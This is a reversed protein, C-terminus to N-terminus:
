RGVDERVGLLDPLARGPISVSCGQDYRRSPAPVRGERSPWCKASRCWRRRRAAVWSRSAAASKSEVIGADVNAVKSSSSARRTCVAMRSVPRSTKCHALARTGWTRAAASAAAAAPASQYPRRPTGVPTVAQVLTSHGSQPKYRRAPGGPAPFVVHRQLEGGVRGTLHGHHEDSRSHGQPVSGCPATHRLRPSDELRTEPWASRARNRVAPGPTSGTAARSASISARDDSPPAPRAWASRAM